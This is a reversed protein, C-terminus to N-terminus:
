GAPQVQRFRVDVPYDPFIEASSIGAIFGYAGGSGAAEPFTTVPTGNFSLTFASTKSDYTVRIDNTYGYGEYLVTGTANADTWPMIPTYVGGNVKGVSYWGSIDIIVYLFDQPSTLGFVLGFGMDPRGGLKKLRAEVATTPSGTSGGWCWEAWGSPHIYSQDNTSFQLFGNGDDAWAITFPRPGQATTGGGAGPQGSGGDTGTAGGSTGAPLESGGPNQAACGVLSVLYGITLILIAATKAKVSSSYFDM